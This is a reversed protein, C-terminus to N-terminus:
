EATVMHSMALLSFHFTNIVEYLGLLAATALSEITNATVPDSVTSQFSVLLDSYSEKARHLLIPESIKNGFSALAAVRAAKALDSSPAEHALLSGLSDLYGRSFNKDKSRVCYDDLFTNLAIQDM